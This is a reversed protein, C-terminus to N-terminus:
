FFRKFVHVITSGIREDQMTNEPAGEIVDINFMFVESAFQPYGEFMFGYEVFYIAYRVSQDTVFEYSYLSNEQLPYPNQLSSNIKLTQYSVEKECIIV